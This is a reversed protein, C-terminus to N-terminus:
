IDAGTDTYNKLAVKEAATGVGGGAVTGVGGAFGGKAPCDAIIEYHDIPLTMFLYM